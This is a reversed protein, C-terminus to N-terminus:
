GLLECLLEDSGWPQTLQTRDSSRHLGLCLASFDNGRHGAALYCSLPQFFSPHAHPFPVQPSFLPPRRALPQPGRSPGQPPSLQFDGKPFYCSRTAALLTSSGRPHESLLVSPRVSVSCGTLCLGSDVSGLPPFPRAPLGEASSAAASCEPPHWSDPTLALRLQSGM